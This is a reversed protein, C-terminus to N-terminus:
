KELFLSRHKGPLCRATMKCSVAKSEVEVVQVEIREGGIVDFFDLRLHCQLDATQKANAVPGQELDCANGFPAGNHVENDVVDCTLRTNKNEDVVREGVEQYFNQECQSVPITSAVHNSHKSARFPLAFIAIM